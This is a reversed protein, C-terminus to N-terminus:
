LLLNLPSLGIPAAVPSCLWGGLGQAVGGGGRTGHVHVPQPSSLVAPKLDRKKQSWINHGKKHRLPAPTRALGMGGTIDMIVPLGKPSTMLCAKKHSNELAVVPRFIKRAEFHVVVKDLSRSRYGTSYM